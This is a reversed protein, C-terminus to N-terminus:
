VVICVRSASAARFVCFRCVDQFCARWYGSAGNMCSVRVQHLALPADLAIKAM